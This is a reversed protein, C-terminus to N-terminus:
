GLRELESLVNQLSIAGNVCASINLVLGSFTRGNDALAKSQPKLVSAVSGAIGRLM